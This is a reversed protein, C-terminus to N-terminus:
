LFAGVGTALLAALYLFAHASKRKATFAYTLAGFALCCAALLTGWGSDWQEGFDFALYAALGGACMATVVRLRAGRTPLNAKAVSEILRDGRLLGTQFMRYRFTLHVGNYMALFLPVAGVGLLPVCAACFAGAFPRLSLWFFGDGLAALPGMLAAKFAVVSEETELGAAIRSEHHLIGGLLAAAVYPHTNFFALHRAVSRKLESSDPYLHRLAPYLAYALGLNQMGQPNWSAQLFLSRWLVRARVGPPIAIPASM